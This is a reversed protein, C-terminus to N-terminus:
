RYVPVTAYALFMDTKDPLFIQTPVDVSLTNAPAHASAHVSVRVPVGASWQASIFIFADIKDM